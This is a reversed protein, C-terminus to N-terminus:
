RKERVRINIRPGSSPGEPAINWVTMGLMRLGDLVEVVSGAADIGPYRVGEVGDVVCPVGAAMSVADAFDVWTTASEGVM